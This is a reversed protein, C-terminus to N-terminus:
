CKKNNSGNLSSYLDDYTKLKHPSQRLGGRPKVWTGPQPVMPTPYPPLPFVDGRFNPFFIKRSIIIYFEPM